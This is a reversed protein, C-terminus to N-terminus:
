ETAQISEAGASGKQEEKEKLYNERKAVRSKSVKDMADIAVEFRDTRIDYEPRVGDKRPQYIIPASDEIPEKNVIIREVKQEITEGESTVSKRITTRNHITRKISKM